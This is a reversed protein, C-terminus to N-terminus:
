NKDKIFQKVRNQKQGQTQKSIGGNFFSKDNWDISITITFIFYSFM